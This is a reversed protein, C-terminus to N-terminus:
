SLFLISLSCVLTMAETCIMVEFGDEREFGAALIEKAFDSRFAHYIQIKFRLSPVVHRRLLALVLEGISWSDVFILTYGGLKTPDTFYLLIKPISAKANKLRHVSYSLNPRHNGLNVMVADQGFRLVQKVAERTLLNATATAAVYPTHRPLILRM